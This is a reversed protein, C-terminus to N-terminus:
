HREVIGDDKQSHPSEEIKHVFDFLDKIVFPSSHIHSLRSTLIKGLVYAVTKTASM